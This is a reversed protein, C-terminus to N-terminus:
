GLRPDHNQTLFLPRVPGFISVTRPVHAVVSGVLFQGCDDVQVFELRLQFSRM